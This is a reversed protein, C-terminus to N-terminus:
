QCVKGYLTTDHVGRWSFTVFTRYNSDREHRPTSSVVNHSLNTLSKSCTQPKRRNGGGIFSVVVIFNFYQQSNAGKDLPWTNKNDLEKIWLGHIKTTQLYPYPDLLVHSVDSDLM